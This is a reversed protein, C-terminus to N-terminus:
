GASLGLALRIKTTASVIMTSSPQSYGNKRQFFDLATVVFQAQEPQGRHPIIRGHLGLRGFGFQRFAFAAPKLEARPRQHHERHNTGCPSFEFQCVPTPSESQGHHPRM